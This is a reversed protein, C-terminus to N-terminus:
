FGHRMRLLYQREGAGARAQAAAQVLFIGRQKAQLHYGQCRMLFICLGCRIPMQRRVPALHLASGLGVRQLMDHMWVTEGSM